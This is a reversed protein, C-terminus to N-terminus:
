IEFTPKYKSEDMNKYHRKLIFYLSKTGLNNEIRQIAKYASRFDKDMEKTDVRTIPKEGSTTIM